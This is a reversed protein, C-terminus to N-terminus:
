LCRMILDAASDLESKAHVPSLYKVILERLCCPKFDRRQRIKEFIIPLFNDKLTQLDESTPLGLVQLIEFIEFADNRAPFLPTKALLEFIICGAAWIDVSADYRTVGM